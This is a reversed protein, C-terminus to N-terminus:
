AFYRSDTTMVSDNLYNGMNSIFCWGKRKLMIIFLVAKKSNWDKMSYVIPHIMQNIQWGLEWLPYTYNDHDQEDIKDKNLLVLIDWDSDAKADRRARSGFLIVKADKPMISEAKKQISKLVEDELHERTVTIM